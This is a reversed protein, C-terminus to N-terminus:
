LLSWEAWIAPTDFLKKRVCECKCPYLKEDGFVVTQIDYAVEPINIVYFGLGQSLVDNIWVLPYGIGVRSLKKDTFWRIM